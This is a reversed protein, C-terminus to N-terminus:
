QNSDLSSLLIYHPSLQHGFLLVCFSEEILGRESETGNAWMEVRKFKVPITATPKTRNCILSTAVSEPDRTRSPVANRVRLAVPGSCLTSVRVYDEDKRRTVRVEIAQQPLINLISLDPPGRSVLSIMLSFCRCRIFRELQVNFPEWLGGVDTKLGM